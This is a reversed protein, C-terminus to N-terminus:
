FWFIWGLLSFAVIAVLVVVAGWFMWGKGGVGFNGVVDREAAHRTHAQEAPTGVKALHQRSKGKRTKKSGSSGMPPSMLRIWGLFRGSRSASAPTLGYYQWDARPVGGLHISM